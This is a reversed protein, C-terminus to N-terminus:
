RLDCRAFVSSCQLRVAGGAVVDVEGAPVLEGGGFAAEVRYHGAPVRAGPEVTGARSVLRM